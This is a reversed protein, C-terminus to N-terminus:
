PLRRHPGASRPTMICSSSLHFPLRRGIVRSNANRAASTIGPIRAPVIGPAQGPIANPRACPAQSTSALLASAAIPIWRWRPAVGCAGAVGMRGCPEPPTAGGADNGSRRSPVGDRRRPAERGVGRRESRSGVCYGSLSWPPSEGAAGTDGARGPATGERRSGRRGRSRSSSNLIASPNVRAATPSQMMERSRRHPAGM